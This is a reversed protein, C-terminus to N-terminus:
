LDAFIFSSYYSHLDFSKGNAVFLVCFMVMQVYKQICMVKLSTMRPISLREILNRHDNMDAAFSISYSSGAALNAYHLFFYVRKLYSPLVVGAYRSHYDSQFHRSCSM